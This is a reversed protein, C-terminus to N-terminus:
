IHIQVEDRNYVIRWWTTKMGGFEWDSHVMSRQEGEVPELDQRCSVLALVSLSVTIIRIQDM